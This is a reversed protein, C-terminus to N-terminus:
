LERSENENFRKIIEKYKNRTHITEAHIWHHLRDLKKQWKPLNTNRIINKAESYTPPPSIYLDKADEAAKKAMKDAHTAM